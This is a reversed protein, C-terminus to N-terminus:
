RSKWLSFLCVSVLLSTVLVNWTTSSTRELERMDGFPLDVQKYPKRKNGCRPVLVPM